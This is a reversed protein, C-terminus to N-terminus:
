RTESEFRTVKVGHRNSLVRPADFTCKGLLGAKDLRDMEIYKGAGGLHGRGTSPDRPMFHGSVASM